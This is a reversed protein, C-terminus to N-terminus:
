SLGAARGFRSALGRTGVDRYATAAPVTLEVETGAGPRSWIELRAGIRLARERMGQLGWHDARGGSGLIQPDIGRGDDRIRLRLQRPDYAIEMEVETGGSHTLANLLAERGIAFAEEMVILDLERPRGEVVSKLRTAGPQSAERAVRELASPLDRLATGTRLSRVRDRGEALIEDARDLTEEIARRAPDEASITKAVAAFKLILTQVGQLLTDHLDRAIREREELRAEMRTRVQQTAQRVRLRYVAATVALVVALALLRFWATQYYAPAISFDLFTGAENWVGSDNSAAVRFRYRAPPLDNYFAQRRTGVEQWDRDRGELKYRFRVKEPAALSLATYDIQLDRIREPLRVPGGGTAADYHRRDATIQEVHVPPALPNFPLHRPDVVSVGTGAAVFWIRGDATKAVTPSFGSPASRTRVGDSSDFVTTQVKPNPKENRDIAAAWAEIESRVVRVLGCATYLWLSGDDDKRAWHVANCPLGNASTLTAARGDKLRSLGGQTAVWVTGDPDVHLSGVQGEGLGDAASYEARLQRNDLLAIGGRYFGAWLGGRSPDPVLVTAFGSGLSEWPTRQVEGGASVRFLGGDAHAIWVSGDSTDAIDHVAGGPVGSVAVFRGADLYGVAQMTSVWVRGRADEHISYPNQGDIKGDRTGSGTDPITIKGERRRRLGISTGLWLNGDRAALVSGVSPDSRDESAKFTAVALPRFRDLGDSTAVWITGERDEFVADVFDGSLGQSHDFRDAAGQHLHVIGGSLIGLWLGGDRDRLLRSIDVSDTTGPIPYAAELRGDVLRRIGNRTGVLLGARDDEGLAYVGGPTNPVAHFEPPGSTRRWVGNQAGAWLADKGDVYLGVVGLGLAGDAGRCLVGDKRIACLRGTPRGIGGAWVTGDRDEIIAAVIQGALEPVQKLRRDKWRALGTRTGIWLTDDRAVRLATIASSPLPQDPPSQWAVARVGDFRVLGFETGLWLYGDATQAIANIAGKTFGDRIKWSTHAYQSVDLAPDLALARPHWALVVAAMAAARKWM